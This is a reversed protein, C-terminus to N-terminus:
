VKLFCVTNLFSGIFAPLISTNVDSLQHKRSRSFFKQRNDKSKKQYWSKLPKVCYKYFPTRSDGKPTELIVQLARATQWFFSHWDLRSMPFIIEKSKKWDIAWNHDKYQFSCLDELSQEFTRRKHPSFLPTLGVIGGRQFWCKPWKPCSISHLKWIVIRKCTWSSGTFINWMKDPTLDPSFTPFNFNEWSVMLIITQFCCIPIDSIGHSLLMQYFYQTIESPLVRHPFWPQTRGPIQTSTTVRRHLFWTYTNVTAYCLPFIHTM